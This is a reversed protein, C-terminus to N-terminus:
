VAFPDCYLWYFPDSYDCDNINPDAGGFGDCGLCKSTTSSVTDQGQKVECKVANNLQSTHCSTSGEVEGSLSCTATDSLCDDDCLITGTCFYSDYAFSVLISSTSLFLILTLKKM